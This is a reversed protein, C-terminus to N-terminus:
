NPRHAALEREINAQAAKAAISMAFKTLFWAVIFSFVFTIVIDRLVTHYWVFSISPIAGAAVAGELDPNGFMNLASLSLTAFLNFFLSAITNEVLAHKATGPAIHWKDCLKFSWETLPFIWATLTIILYCAGWNKIAGQWTWAVGPDGFITGDLIIAFTSMLLSLVLAIITTMVM